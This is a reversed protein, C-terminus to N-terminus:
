IKFWAFKKESEKKQLFKVYNKIRCGHVFKKLFARTKM